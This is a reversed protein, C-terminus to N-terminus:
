LRLRFYKTKNKKDGILCKNSQDRKYQRWAARVHSTKEINTCSHVSMLHQITQISVDHAMYINRTLNEESLARDDYRDRVQSHVLEIDSPIM